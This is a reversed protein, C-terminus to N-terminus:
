LSASQREPAGIASRCGVCAGAGVRGPQGEQAVGHATDACGQIELVLGALQSVPRYRPEGVESRNMQAIPDHRRFIVERGLPRLTRHHHVAHRCDVM